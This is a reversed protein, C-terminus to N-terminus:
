PSAVVLGHPPHQTLFQRRSRSSSTFIARRTTFSRCYELCRIESLKLDRNCEFRKYSRLFHKDAAWCRGANAWKQFYVTLSTKKEKERICTATSLVCLETQIEATPNRNEVESRMHKSLQSHARLADSLLFEFGLFLWTRQLPNHDFGLDFGLLRLRLGFM